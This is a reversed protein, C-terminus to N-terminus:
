RALKAIRQGAVAALLDHVRGRGPIDLDPAIEALPALAFAREALRPHPLELEPTALVRTGFVLLDLDLTRPARAFPRTRGHAREIEQLARLLATPALSTRVHAAANLYDDGTAEHPASEYCSSRAVLTTGPLRAIADFARDLEVRRDGVNSGLAIFADEVEASGPALRASTV